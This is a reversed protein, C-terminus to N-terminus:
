NNVGENYEADASIHFSVRDVPVVGSPFFINIGDSSTSSASVSSSSLGVRTVNNFGKTGSTKNMDVGASTNFAM